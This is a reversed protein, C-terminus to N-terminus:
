EKVAVMNLKEKTKGQSANLSKNAPAAMHKM